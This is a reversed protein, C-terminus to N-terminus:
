PKPPTSTSTNNENVLRIEHGNIKFSPGGPQVVSIPYVHAAFPPKLKKAQYETGEVKPMPLVEYDSYEDIAMKDLDVRITIGEIPRAWINASGDKYFGMVMVVRKENGKEGFWEVPFVSLVVEKADLKIKKLSELFPKYTFPLTTAVDNDKSSLTPFGTGTYVRHSEISNNTLSVIIEHTKQKARAIAFAQRPPPPPNKSKNSLWSLVAKRNLNFLHWCLRYLPLGM